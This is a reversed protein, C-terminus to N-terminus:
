SGTSVPQPAFYPSQPIAVHGDQALKVILSQVQRGLFIRQRLDPIGLASITYTEPSGNQTMDATEVVVGHWSFALHYHWAPGGYNRWGGHQE